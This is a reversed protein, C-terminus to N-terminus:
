RTPPRSAPGCPPSWWRSARLALQHVLAASADDLLHADDVGLLLPRGRSREAFLEATRRLTDLRDDGLREAPPLLHSVVGFPISAAARTAALWEVDWEAAKAWTLAERALRTKGIGAAGALVVGGAHTDGFVASLVEIESRRGVLPWTVDV